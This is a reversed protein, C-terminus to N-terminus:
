GHSSGYPNAWRWGTTVPNEARSPEISYGEYRLAHEVSYGHIRHLHSWLEQETGRMVESGDRKLVYRGTSSSKYPYGPNGAREKRVRYSRQGVTLKKYWLAGCVSEPVYAGGSKKVGAVCRYWWDKPPRKM